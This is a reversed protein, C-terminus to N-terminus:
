IRVCLKLANATYRIASPAANNSHIGPLQVPPAAGSRTPGGNREFHTSEDPPFRQAAEAKREGPTM